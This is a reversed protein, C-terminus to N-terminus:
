RPAAAALVMGGWSHGVLVVDHLDAREVHAVLADVCDALTLGTGAAAAAFSSVGPITEVEVEPALERVM